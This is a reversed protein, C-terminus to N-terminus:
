VIALLHGGLGHTICGKHTFFQKNGTKYFFYVNKEYLVKIKLSKLTFFSIQSYRKGQSLLMFKIPSENKLFICCLDDILYFGYICKKLWLFEMFLRDMDSHLLFSANIKKKKYAQVLLSLLFKERNGSL